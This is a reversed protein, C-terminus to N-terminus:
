CSQETEARGHRHALGVVDPSTLLCQALGDKVRNPASFSFGCLAVASCECLHADGRRKTQCSRPVIGLAWSAAECPARLRSVTVVAGCFNVAGLLPPPPSQRVTTVVSGSHLLCPPNPKLETDNRGRVHRLVFNLPSLRWRGFRLALLRM